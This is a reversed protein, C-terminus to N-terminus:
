NLETIEIICYNQGFSFLLNPNHQNDHNQNAKIGKYAIEKAGTLEAQALLYRDM